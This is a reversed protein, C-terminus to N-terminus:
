APALSAAGERNSGDGAVAADGPRPVGAFPSLMLWSAFPRALAKPGVVQVSKARQASEFALDGLWVKAM